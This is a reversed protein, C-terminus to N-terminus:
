PAMAYEDEPVEVGIAKAIEVKQDDLIEEQLGEMDGSKLAKKIQDDGVVDALEEGAEVHGKYEATLDSPINAQSSPQWEVLEGAETEQLVGSQDVYIVSQLNYEGAQEEQHIREHENVRKWYGEDKLQYDLASTDYTVSRDAMNTYAAAGIAHADGVYASGDLVETRSAGYSKVNDLVQGAVVDIQSGFLEQLEAIQAEARAEVNATFQDVTVEQGNQQEATVIDQAISDALETEMHRTDVGFVGFPFCM